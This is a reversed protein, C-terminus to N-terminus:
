RSQKEICNKRYVREEYKGEDKWKYVINECSNSMNMDDDDFYYIYSEGNITIRIFSDDLFICYNNGFDDSLLVNNGQNYIDDLIERKEVDSKNCFICDEIDNFMKKVISHKMINVGIGKNRLFESISDKSGSISSVVVNNTYKFREWMSLSMYMFENSVTSILYVMDGIEFSIFRVRRNNTNFISFCEKSDNRDFFCNSWKIYKLEDKSFFKKMLLKYIGILEIHGIINERGNFYNCLFKFKVKLMELVDLGEVYSTSVDGLLIQRLGEDDILYSRFNRFEISLRDIVEDFYMGDYYGICKDIIKLEDFSLFGISKDDLLEPYREKCYDISAFRNSRMGLQNLELDSLCNIIYKQDGCVLIDCHGFEDNDCSIVEVDYGYLSVLDRKAMECYSKCVVPYSEFSDDIKVVHNYIKRRQERNEAQFFFNYDRYVRKSIDVLYKRVNTLMKIDRESHM